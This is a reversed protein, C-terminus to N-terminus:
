LLCYCRAVNHYNGSVASSDSVHLVYQLSCVLMACVTGQNTTNEYAMEPNAFPLYWSAEHMESIDPCM